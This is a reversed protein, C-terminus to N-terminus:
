SAKVNLIIILGRFVLGEGRVQADLKCVSDSFEESGSSQPDRM